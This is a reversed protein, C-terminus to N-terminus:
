KGIAAKAIWHPLFNADAGLSNFIDQVPAFQLTPRKVDRNLPVLDTVLRLGGRPKVVFSAGSLWETAEGEKLWCLVGKAMLRDLEPKAGDIPGFPTKRAVKLHLSNIPEDKLEIEYAPGVMPKLEEVDDFVKKYHAIAKQFLKKLDGGECFQNLDQQAIKKPSESTQAQSNKAVKAVM